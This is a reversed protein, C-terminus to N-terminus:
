TPSPIPGNGRSSLVSWMAGSIMLDGYGHDLRDLRLNDQVADVHQLYVREDGTM